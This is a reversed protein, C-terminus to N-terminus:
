KSVLSASSIMPKTNNLLNQLKSFKIFTYFRFCLNAHISLTRFYNKKNTFNSYNHFGTRNPPIPQHFKEILFDKRKKSHKWEKIESIDTRNERERIKWGKKLLFRIMVLNQLHIIQQSSILCNRTRQNQMGCTKEFDKKNRSHQM